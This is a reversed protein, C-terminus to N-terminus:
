FHAQPSLEDSSVETRVTTLNSLTAAMMAAPIAGLKAISMIFFPSDMIIMDSPLMIVIFEFAASAIFIDAIIFGIFFHATTMIPLSPLIYMICDVSLFHLSMPFIYDKV